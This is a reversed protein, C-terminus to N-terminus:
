GTVNESLKRIYDFIPKDFIYGTDSNTGNMGRLYFYIVGGFLSDFFKKPNSSYEPKKAKIFNHLALSYIAHQIFYGSSAMNALLSEKSYYKYDPGLWSAKYDAIYFKGNYNFILDISGTMFGHKFLAGQKISISSSDLIKKLDSDRKFQAFAYKSFDQNFIYPNIKTEAPYYFEMESATEDAKLLSLSFGQEIESIPTTLVKELMDFTQALRLDLVQQYESSTRPASLSYDLLKREIKNRLEKVERFDRTLVSSFEFDELVEHCFSGTFRGKSPFHFFSTVPHVALEALLRESAINHPPSKDESEGFIREIPSSSLHSGAALASYSMIGWDSCIHEPDTLSFSKLEEPNVINANLPTYTEFGRNSLADSFSICKSNPIDLSEINVSSGKLFDVYSIDEPLAQVKNAMMNMLYFISTKNTSKKQSEVNAFYVYLRYVARTMAVYMLRLEEALNEKVIENVHSQPNELDCFLKGDKHYSSDRLSKIEYPEIGKTWLFPCFVVPYELGKCAHMTVIQVAEADTDLRIEYDSSEAEETIATIKEYLYHNVDSPTFNNKSAEKHILEALHLINTLAREGGGNNLINLRIDKRLKQDTVELSEPEIFTMFMSIFGKENWLDHYRCFINLWYEYNASGKETSFDNIEGPTLGLFSGALATRIKSPDNKSAIAELLRLLERAEETKFINGTASIVSPVGLSFLAKQITSAETHKRVLVAIDKPTLNKRSKEQGCEDAKIIQVKGASALNLLAAIRMALDKAVSQLAIDKNKEYSYFLVFPKGDSSDDEIEIRSYKNAPAAKVGGYALEDYVFSNKCSSEKFWSDVAEVLSQLTRYNTDLTYEKLKENKKVKLYAFIDAGRFKYISQKPDGIMFLTSDPHNFVTDFVEFQIPDTDQFEDILAASFHKRISVAFPNNKDCKNNTYLAKRMDTLMDTYSRVGLRAKKEALSSSYKFDKLFNLKFNVSFTRFEEDLKECLNTFIKLTESPLWKKRKETGNMVTLTGFKRIGYIDSASNKKLKFADAFSLYVPLLEEGPKKNFPISEIEETLSSKNDSWYKLISSITNKIGQILEVVKRDNGFDPLLKIDPNKVLFSAASKLENLTIDSAKIIASAEFSDYFTSRWLDEVAENILDTENKILELNFQSGSEFAKESLMRLCFAHITFIAAEDFNLLATKLSIKLENIDSNNQLAKEIIGKVKEDIKVDHDELYLCAEKLNRRLRDRLEATAPVTFTVVLIESPKLKREVLLRLYINSIAYTKGTGASAEILFLGKEIPTNIIDFSEAKKM